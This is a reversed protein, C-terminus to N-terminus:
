KNKSIYNILNKLSPNENLNRYFNKLRQNFSSYRAIPIFENNELFIYRKEKIEFNLRKLLNKFEFKNDNNKNKSQTYKKSNLYDDLYFKRNKQKSFDLGQYKNKIDNEMKLKKLRKSEDIYNMEIEKARINIELKKKDILYRKYPELQSKGSKLKIKTFLPSASENRKPKIFIFDKTFKIKKRKQLLKPTFFSNLLLPKTDKTKQTSKLINNNKDDIIYRNYFKKKIIDFKNINSINLDSSNIFLRKNTKNKIIKKVSSSKPNIENKIPSVFADPSLASFLITSFSVNKM